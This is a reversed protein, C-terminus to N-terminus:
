DSVVTFVPNEEFDFDGDTCEEEPERDLAHYFDPIVDVLHTVIVMRSVNSDGDSTFM